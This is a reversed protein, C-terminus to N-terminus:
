VFAGRWMRTRARTTIRLEVGCGCARAVQLPVRALCFACTPAVMSRRIRSLLPTVRVQEEDVRSFRVFLFFLKFPNIYHRRSLHLVDILVGEVWFGLMTPLYAFGVKLKKTARRSWPVSSLANVANALAACEGNDLLRMGNFLWPSMVCGQRVGRRIYFPDTLDNGVRM